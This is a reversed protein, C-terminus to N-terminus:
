KNLICLDLMKERLKEPSCMIGNFRQSVISGDSLNIHTFMYPTGTAVLKNEAMYNIVDPIEPLEKVPTFKKSNARKKKEIYYM